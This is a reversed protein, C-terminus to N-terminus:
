CRGRILPQSTQRPSDALRTPQSRAANVVEPVAFRRDHNTAQDLILSQTLGTTMFLANVLEIRANTLLPTIRPSM